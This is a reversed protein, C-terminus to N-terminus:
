KKDSVSKSVGTKRAVLILSEWELSSGRVGIIEVVTFGYAELLTTLCKKSWRQIYGGDWPIFYPPNLWERMTILLNKLYGSYPISLIFVGGYQVKTAALQILISPMLSPEGLEISVAMDFPADKIPSPDILRRGSHNIPTSKEQRGTASEEPHLGAVSYGAHHLDHCLLQAGHGIGLIRLAGYRARIDMIVSRIRPNVNTAEKVSCQCLFNSEIMQSAVM